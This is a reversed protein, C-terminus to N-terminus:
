EWIEIFKKVNLGPSAMHRCAQTWTVGHPSLGCVAVQLIYADRGRHIILKERGSKIEPFMFIYKCKAYNCWVSIICTILMDFILKAFFYRTLFFLSIINAALLQTIRLQYSLKDSNPLVNGIGINVQQWNSTKPDLTKMAMTIKHRLRISVNEANSYGQAPFEGTM